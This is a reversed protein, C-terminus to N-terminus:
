LIHHFFCRPTSRGARTQGEGQRGLRYSYEMGYGPSLHVPGRLVPWLLFSCTQPGPQLSAPVTPRRLAAKAGSPGACPGDMARAGTRADMGAGEARDHGSRPGSWGRAESLEARRRLGFAGAERGGPGGPRPAPKCPRDISAPAEKEPSVKKSHRLPRDHKPHRLLM